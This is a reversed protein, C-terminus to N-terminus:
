GDLRDFFMNSQSKTTTWNETSICWNYNEQGTFQCLICVFM